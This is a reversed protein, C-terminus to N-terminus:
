SVGVKVSFETDSGKLTVTADTMGRTMLQAAKLASRFRLSTDDDIDHVDKDRVETVKGGQQNVLTTGQKRPVYKEDFKKRLERYVEEPAGSASVQWAM